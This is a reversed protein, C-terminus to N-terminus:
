KVLEVDDAALWAYVTGAAMGNKGVYPSVDAKFFGDRNEDHGAGVYFVSVSEKAMLQGNIPKSDPLEEDNEYLRLESNKKKDKLVVRAFPIGNDIETPQTSLLEGVHVHLNAGLAALEKLQEYTLGSM